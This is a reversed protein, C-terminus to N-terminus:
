LYVCVHTNKIFYFHHRIPQERGAWTRHGTHLLTSLSCGSGAIDNSNDDNAAM